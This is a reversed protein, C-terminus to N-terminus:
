LEASFSYGNGASANYAYMQGSTSSGISFRAAFQTVAAVTPQGSNVTTWTGIITGTPSTRMPVVHNVFTWAAQSGATAVGGVIVEGVGSTNQYYYRQCLALETGYPRYDFSTATSGKELQVGTIQWTAANTGVISVASTATILNASQWSGAAGSQNSGAGLGFLLQLGSNNDTLWTGSQDGAITVTKQEWTNPNNIVYTFAYSRSFDNNRVAGGFTGTLSSKVWFSFTFTVANSTGLAFDAVNFGEIYQRVSFTDAALVSYASLSTVKLSKTFGVPADSVQQVSMKSAQTAYSIWRDLTYTTTNAAPTVSAGANRQDIVMAGNIIRNKFGFTSPAAPDQQVFTNLIGATPRLEVKDGTVWAAATTNDQGRVITFTDSSRATVKVIEVTGTLNALTVYFVDSSSLSPFLAGTGTAVTLSTASSNIGSALTTTANNTFKITM